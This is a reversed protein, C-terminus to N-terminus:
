GAACSEKWLAAFPVKVCLRAAGKAFGPVPTTVTTFALAMGM